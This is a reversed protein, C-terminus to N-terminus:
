LEAQLLMGSFTTWWGGGFTYEPGDYTQLYVQEGANVKACTHGTSWNDGVCFVYGIRTSKHIVDLRGKVARDVKNPSTTVMFCYTGTVPATFVGTKNDYGGGVSTVTHDCVITTKEKTTVPKALIAHFAVSSTAKALNTELSSVTTQNSAVTSKLKSLGTQLSSINRNISTKDKQLQGLDTKESTVDQSLSGVDKQLATVNTKLSSLDGQTTTSTEKLAVMEKELTMNKDATSTMGRHLAQTDTQLEKVLKGCEALDKNSEKQALADKELTAITTCLSTNKATVTAMEKHLAANDTQLEAVLKKCEAFDKSLQDVKTAIDLFGVLVQGATNGQESAEVPTKQNGSLHSSAAEPSETASTMGPGHSTQAVTNVFDSLSNMLPSMTTDDLKYELMTEEDAEKLVDFYRQVDAESLVDLQVDQSSASQGSCQRQLKRLKSDAEDMKRQIREAMCETANELSKQSASHVTGAHQLLKAYDGDIKQKERESELTLKDKKGRLTKVVKEVLQIQQDKKVSSSDRTQKQNIEILGTAQCCKDHYRRCQSCVKNPCKTCSYKATQEGDCLDCAPASLSEEELYFNNQMYGVGGPPVPTVARCTPCILTRRKTTEGETREGENQPGELSLQQTGDCTLQRLCPLCFTHFCPLLKPHRGRFSELCISCTKRHDLDPDVGGTAM